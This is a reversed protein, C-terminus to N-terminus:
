LQRAQYRGPRWPVYSAVNGELSGPLNTGTRAPDRPVGSAEATGSDPRTWEPDQHSSISYFIECPGRVSLVIHRDKKTKVEGDLKHESM